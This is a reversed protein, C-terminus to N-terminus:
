GTRKITKAMLLMDGIGAAAGGGCGGEEAGRGL